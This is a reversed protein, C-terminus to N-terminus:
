KERKKGNEDTGAGASYIVNWVIMRIIHMKKLM